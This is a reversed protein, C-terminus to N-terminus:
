ESKVSDAPNENATRWSCFTVTAVTVALVVAFAAAFIWWRIPVRYAFSALWRDVLGYGVPAALIFCVTVLTVYRRNFLRLIEATTAGMVKRIAVERRRHQTEFLVIGFVGMLAIAVALITFLGVITTIRRERAYQVNIEEDMFRIGVAESDPDFQRAKTRIGECVADLDAGAALRVYFHSMRNRWYTGAVFAFPETSYQLPRYHFDPCIGIVTGEDLKGGVKLGKRALLDNVIFRATSDRDHEPRFGEGAVVPIGLVDLFNSRVFRVHIGVEEDNIKRGFVSIAEAVFRNGSATVGVIQPDTQLSSAFTDFSDPNTLKSSPFDFALIREHDFGLDFRRVYRQQLLTCISFTILGISVIFQVGLLVFRFRRGATSGVFSGKAAMAPNFSTIYWAPFSGAVLAAVLSVGLSIGLVPLNDSLALSSSVYSAFETGKLAISVYWACLQALLMFGFAEFLFSFRLSASPAGFVKLINVSRLRVPLLAFFFNVFNILAILIILVAVSLLSYTLTASGIPFDETDGAIRRDFYLEDLPILTCARPDNMEEESIEENWVAAMRELYDHYITLHFESWRRAVAEPDAAPQLRVFYCDNWNNPSDLDQDGVDQLGVVDAFTSNAPFDEYVAVVEKQVEPRRNEEDGFWLVDGVRLGLRESQARSLAVSNPQKLAKLDGELTQLGMAEIFGASVENFSGQLRLLDGGRRVWVPQEWNWIRICGGAEIEPSQAIVQDGDPRPSTISHGTEDFPSLPAILYIRGADPIARNFTLEWRVQVMIVYFATFALTLGIVNLLSSAKYRRLTTLFNHFAIKM